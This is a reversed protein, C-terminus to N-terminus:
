PVASPAGRLRSCNRRRWFSRRLPVVIPADEPMRVPVVKPVGTTLVDASLSEGPAEHAAPETIAEAAARLALRAGDSGQLAEWLEFGEPGQDPCRALRLSRECTGHLGGAALEGGTFANGGDGEVGEARGGLQCQQRSERKPRSAM